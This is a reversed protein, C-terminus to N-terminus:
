EIEYSLESTSDMPDDKDKLNNYVMREYYVVSSRTSSMSTDRSISKNTSLTRGRMEDYNDPISGTPFDVGMNNPFVTPILSDQSNNM